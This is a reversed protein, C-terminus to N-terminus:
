RKSFNLLNGHLSKFKKLKEKTYESVNCEVEKEDLFTLIFGEICNDGSVNRQWLVDCQKIVQRRLTKNHFDNLFKAFDVYIKADRSRFSSIGHISNQISLKLRKRFTDRIVEHVLESVQYYFYCIEPLFTDPISYKLFFQECMNVFIDPYLKKMKPLEDWKQENILAVCKNLLLLEMGINASTGFIIGSIEARINEPLDSFLRIKINEICENNIYRWFVFRCISEIKFQPYLRRYIIVQNIYNKIRRPTVNYNPLCGEDYEVNLLQFIKLVCMKDEESFEKEVFSWQKQFFKEWITLSPRPVDLRLQFCKEFFVNNIDKSQSNFLEKSYPILFWVRDKFEADIKLFLQMSSMIEWVRDKGLRDLNDLVIVLKVQDKEFFTQLIKDYLKKFEYSDKDCFQLEESVDKDFAVVSVESIIHACKLVFLLLALCSMVGIIGVALDFGNNYLFIYHDARFESNGIIALSISFLLTFITVFIGFIGIKYHTRQKKYRVEDLLESEEKLLGIILQSLFAVHLPDNKHAWSDFTFIKLKQTEQSKKELLRVITSKGCGWDGELGITYGGNKSKSIIDYLMESIKRHIGGEFEDIDSCEERLFNVNLNQKM